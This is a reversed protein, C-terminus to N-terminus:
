ESVSLYPSLPHPQYIYSRSERIIQYARAYTQDRNKVSEIHDDLAKAGHLIKTIKLFSPVYTVDKLKLTSLKKKESSAFGVEYPVWWSKKTNKSILTMLDTSAYIGLQISKTIAIHDDNKVAQQLAADDADLYIDVGKSKIYNGISVVAQKDESKHSLFICPKTSIPILSLNSLLRNLASEDLGYGGAVERVNYYRNTGEM